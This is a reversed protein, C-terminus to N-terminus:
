SRFTWPVHWQRSTTSSTFAGRCSSPTSPPSTRRSRVNSDSTSGPRGASAARAPGPARDPSSGIRVGALSVVRDGAEPCLGTTETDFVVFTLDTLRRSWRDSGAPPEIEDLLALDDDAPQPAGSDLVVTAEGRAADLLDALRNIDEGLAELEDGTRIRLRHGPNM